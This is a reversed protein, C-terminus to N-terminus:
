LLGRSAGGDVAITAGTIFSARESALFAVVAACEAPEGMRKLPISATMEALVADRSKGGAARSAVLEEMRDTRHIGPCVNNVLINHPALEVSLTKALGIVAPRLTNSLLLGDIPQKVSISTINVIRGWRRSKMHPLALRVLRVVNMLTNEFAAVFAADDAADFTAPKPGGTNTVLIDVRGFREVTQAVLRECDAASAVDAEVPLTEVSCDRAIENAAARLPGAGRASLVVRCGEAALAAACARGLGKSAATM